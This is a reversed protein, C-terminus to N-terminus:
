DRVAESADLADLFANCTLLGVREEAHRVKAGAYAMSMLLFALLLVMMTIFDLTARLNERNRLRGQYSTM